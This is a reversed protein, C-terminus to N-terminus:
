LMRGELWQTLSFAFLCTEDELSAVIDFTWTGAKVFMGPIEYDALVDYRGGYTLYDVYSGGIERISIHAHEGFATTRFPVAYTVPEEHEGNELIVSLTISLTANAPDNDERLLVEKSEPISGRLLVFFYQNLPIPSPAIELLEVQFLQDEKPVPGYTVNNHGPVSSKEEPKSMTGTHGLSQQQEFTSDPPGVAAATLRISVTCLVLLHLLVIKM